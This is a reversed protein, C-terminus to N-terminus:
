RLDYQVWKDQFKFQILTVGFIILLLIWSIAAGYGIENFRFTARWLYLVVTYGSQAVTPSDRLLVYPQEFIQITAITGVILNYFTAPSILPLTIHRFRQWANAGDVEAAEYFEKPVATLSALYIMMMQGCSWILLLVISTKTWLPSQLWLPVREAAPFGAALTKNFMVFSGGQLGMFASNVVEVVYILARMLYGFLPVAASIDRILTNVLGNNANFMLVWCLLVASNLGLIVPMYFSMRFFREGFVKRNLLLALGLASLIQMPLGFLTFYLSNILSARFDPDMTFLKIYNQLGVLRPPQPPKYVTFSWYLSALMPVLVFIVFGVLWPAVFAYGIFTDQQKQSGSGRRRVIWRAVSGIILSSVFIFAITALAWGLTYGYKELM